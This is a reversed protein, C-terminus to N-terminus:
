DGEPINNLFETCAACVPLGKPDLQQGEKVYGCLAVMPKGELLFDDLQMKHFYHAVKEGNSDTTSTKEDTRELLDTM